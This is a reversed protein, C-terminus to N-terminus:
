PAVTFPVNSSLTGSPTVVQIPGSTAGAPVTATILSDSVVTFEAATGNFTVSSSGTLANGLINVTSGAMGSSTQAEVFSGLGTYLSFVVGKGASGGAVTTGYFSGDTAQLLGGFPTSGYVCDDCFNYITKLGRGPIVKFITGGHIHTGGDYTVGYLNGDSGQVLAARSNYGTKCGASSCFNYIVTPRGDPTIKFVTGGHQAGGRLTTGYFDGNSAQILGAEPIEGIKPNFSHLTTLAGGASIRFVTGDQYVGGVSTTGYFNGDTGQVLTGLPKSGDACDSLTCFNYLTTLAGDITIQFVTGAKDAGGSSTTGYLNGDTAQMVGAYPHAGDPCGLSMGGTCFSYLTNLTGGATLQFVTGGGNAGGYFTTGYFNGDTAQALAARPNKGDQCNSQACFSYLATLEGDADINFITGGNNAGGTSTTGYFNGDTAQILAAQPRRGEAGDFSRLRSYTQAPAIAAIGAGLATLVFASLVSTVIREMIHEEPM